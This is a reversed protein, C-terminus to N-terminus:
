NSTETEELLEEDIMNDIFNLGTTPNSAVTNMLTERMTTLAEAEQVSARALEEYSIGTDRRTARYEQPIGITNDFRPLLEEEAISDERIYMPAPIFNAGNNEARMRVNAMDELGIEPISTVSSANTEENTPIYNQRVLNIAQNTNAATLRAIRELENRKLPRKICIMKYISQCLKEYNWSVLSHSEHIGFNRYSNPAIYDRIGESFIIPNIEKLAQYIKDLTSRQNLDNRINWQRATQKIRKALLNRQQENIDMFRVTFRGQPNLRLSELDFPIKNRTNPTIM